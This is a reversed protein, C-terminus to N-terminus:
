APQRRGDRRRRGDQGEGGEGAVLARRAGCDSLKLDNPTM